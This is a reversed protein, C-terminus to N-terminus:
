LSDAGGESLLSVAFYGAVREMAEAVSTVIDDAGSERLAKAVDLTRESHGWVGAIIKVAPFGARLKACRFRAHIITTPPIASVCVVDPNNERLWVLLENMSMKAPANVVSYGNQHLLHAFMDGALQDRYARAPICCVRFNRGAEPEPSVTDHRTDLEDLIDSLGQEILELHESELLGLRQDTEAATIVPFLMTDFLSSLPNTKLFHDVLEMEDHEGIRHLRHYCDEAPTLAEKDSLIISLFSLSPIHRGMVVLCVTLPTSLVLGVPGWLWTWGLAAVILAIPTVGTSSGYLWPEVVNSALLELVLFLGMVLLPSIWDPSVALSVLIPLTGGIWPGLYPIFRLVGALAGWLIANPVGIYALGVTVAFGYAVNVVLQMQLYRSVRSGADDMARSTVSIRGQGILRILRNRLDERQMLMFVLLLLVLAATGFPGLLPSLVVQVFELRGDRGNVVEVPMANGDAKVRGDNKPAPSKGTGGPLDTKLDEFVKSIKAYPGNGPMQVSRLKMRINEEYDPLKNALDIAQRTLVWGASGAVTFMMAVVLLVACTRGLWRQMRTVLPSLMFTLLAALALPVLLDRAFSLMGIIFASLLVNSITALSKASSSKNAPIAM